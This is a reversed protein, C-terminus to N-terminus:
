VKSTGICLDIVEKLIMSVEELGKSFEVVFYCCNLKHNAERIVMADKILMEKEFIWAFSRPYTGLM